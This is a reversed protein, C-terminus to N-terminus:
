LNRLTIGGSDSGIWGAGWNLSFADQRPEDQCQQQYDTSVEPFCQLDHDILFSGLVERCREGPGWVLSKAAEQQQLYGMGSM